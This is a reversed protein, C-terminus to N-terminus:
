QRRTDDAHDASIRASWEISSISRVLQGLIPLLSRAPGNSWGAIQRNLSRSISQLSRDASRTIDHCRSMLSLLQRGARRQIAPDIVDDTALSDPRQDNAPEEMEDIRIFYWRTEGDQTLYAPQPPFVDAIGAGSLDAISLHLQHVDGHNSVVRYDGATITPPLPFPNATSASAVHGTSGALAAEDITIATVAIANTESTEPEASVPELAARCDDAEAPCLGASPSEVSHSPTSVDSVTQHQRHALSEVSPQAIRLPMGTPAHPDTLVAIATRHRSAHPNDDRPVPDMAADYSWLAAFLSIAVLLISLRTPM